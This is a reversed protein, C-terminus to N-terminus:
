MFHDLTDIIRLPMYICTRAKGKVVTCRDDSQIGVIKTYLCRTLLVTPLCVTCECGCGDVAQLSLM